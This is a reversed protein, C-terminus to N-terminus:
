AGPTARSRLYRVYRRRMEEEKRLRARVRREWKGGYASGHRRWAAEAELRAHVARAYRIGPLPLRRASM